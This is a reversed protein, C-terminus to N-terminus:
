KSDEIHNITGDIDDATPGGDDFTSGLGIASALRDAGTLRPTTDVVRNEHEEERDFAMQMEASQPCLKVLRRIATKKAMETEHLTWPHDKRANLYGKSKDRIGMVESRSMIVSQQGGDKMAVMAFVAIWNSIDRPQKLDFTHKTIRGLNHEFVDTECVVDCHITSVVGSRRMLDCYGQYGVIMTCKDGYPILYVRRGDIELGMGAADLVCQMLSQVTCLRLKPNRNFSTIVLRVFREADMHSPLATAFQTIMQPSRLLQDITPQTRAVSNGQQQTIDGSM